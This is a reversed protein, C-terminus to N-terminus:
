NEITKKANTEKKTQGGNVANSAATPSSPDNAASSTSAKSAAFCVVQQVAGNRKAAMVKSKM